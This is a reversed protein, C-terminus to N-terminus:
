TLTLTDKNENMVLYFSVGTNIVSDLISVSRLARYTPVFPCQPQYGVMRLAGELLLTECQALYREQKYTTRWGKQEWFRKLQAEAERNGQQQTAVEPHSLIWRDEASINQATVDFGLLSSSELLSPMALLQGLLFLQALMEWLSACTEDMSVQTRMKGSQLSTLTKQVAASKEKIGELQASVSEPYPPRWTAEMYRLMAETASNLGLLYGIPWDETFGKQKLPMPLAKDSQFHADSFSRKARQLAAPVQLYLERVQTFTVEPVYGATKPDAIADAQLLHDGIMSYARAQWLFVRALMIQHTMAREGLIMRELDDLSELSGRLSALEAQSREGRLMAFFASKLSMRTGQKKVHHNGEHCAEEREGLVFPLAKLHLGTACPPRGLGKDRKALVPMVIQDKRYYIFAL